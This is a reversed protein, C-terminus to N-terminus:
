EPWGRHDKDQKSRLRFLSIGKGRYVLNGWKYGTKLLRDDDSALLLYDAGQERLYEIKDSSIDEAKEINWGKRDLMLLGGNQTLDPAIIFLAEKGIGLSDLDPKNQQIILGTRSYDDMAADHRARFKRGSYHIGWAIIIFILTKLITSYVHKIELNRFTKIANIFVLIFLPFFTIFYYDHDRFQSYFLLFFALNGAFLIMILLSLFRESRKLFLIQFVVSAFFLYFVPKPFYSRYWYNTFHDWVIAIEERSIRWIPMASTNFSTSEYINNYHIMYLNWVIVLLVSVSGYAILRYYSGPSRSEKTAAFLLLRAIVLAIPNILYTVKILSGLTFFIFSLMLNGRKPYHRYRIFFYWGAMIFGFAAPDPLYNLSYYNFVTSTFLLLAILISFVTDKLILRSMKYTFFVGTMVILYNLIKLIFLQKGCVLYILATIYYLVPFECAARADINKMNFLAPHFFDFGENYYVAAFSLSDTQRMFHIGQPGTLLLEDMGLFFFLGTIIIIAITIEFILNSSIGPIKKM